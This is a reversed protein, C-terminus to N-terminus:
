HSLNSDIIDDNEKIFKLNKILEKQMLSNEKGLIENNISM